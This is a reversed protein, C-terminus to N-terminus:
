VNTFYADAPSEEPVEHYIDNEDHRSIFDDDSLLLFTQSAADTSSQVSEPRSLLRPRSYSHSHINDNANVNPNNSTGRIIQRQNQGQNVKQYYKANFKPTTPIFPSPSQSKNLTDDGDLIITQPFSYVSNVNTQITIKQSRRREIRQDDDNKSDNLSLEVDKDKINKQHMKAVIRATRGRPTDIDSVELKRSKERPFLENSSSESKNEISTKTKLGPQDPFLPKKALTNWSKALLLESMEDKTVTKGDNGYMGTYEHESTLGGFSTKDYLKSSRKRFGVMQGIEDRDSNKTNTGNTETEDFSKRSLRRSPKYDNINNKDQQKRKNLQARLQKYYENRHDYLAGFSFFCMRKTCCCCGAKDDQIIPVYKIEYANQNNNANGNGNTNNKHKFHALGSGSLLLPTAPKNYDFKIWEWRLCKFLIFGITPLIFSIICLIFLTSEFINYNHIRYTLACLIPGIIIGLYISCRYINFSINTTEKRYKRFLANRLYLLHPIISFASSISVIVLGNVIPVLRNDKQYFHDNRSVFLLGISIGFMGFLMTKLSGCYSYTVANAIFSFIIFPIGFALYYTAMHLKGINNNINFRTSNIDNLYLSLMNLLYTVCILSYVSTITSYIINMDNYAYIYCSLKVKCISNIHSPIYRFAIFACIIVMIGITIFVFKYGIEYLYGSLFPGIVLGIMCFLPMNQKGSLRKPPTVKTTISLLSLEIIVSVIGSLFRILAGFIYYKLSPNINSLTHSDQIFDPILGFLICLIGQLILGIVICRSLGIKYIFTFTQFIPTFLLSTLPQLIIIIVVGFINTDVDYTTHINHKNISIIPYFSSLMSYVIFQMLWIIGSVIVLKYSMQEQYDLSIHGAAHLSHTLYQDNFRNPLSLHSVESQERIEQFISTEFDFLDNIGSRTCLCCCYKRYSLFSASDKSANAGSLTATM